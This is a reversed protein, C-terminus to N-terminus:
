WLINKYLIQPQITNMATRFAKAMQMPNMFINGTSITTVAGSAFNRTHTFPGFVTKGAQVMGKPIMVGIQYWMPMVKKSLSIDAAHKLGQAINETTFKGNLPVDLLHINSNQALGM